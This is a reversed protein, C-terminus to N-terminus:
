KHMKKQFNIEIHDKQSKKEKVSNLYNEISQSFYKAPNYENKPAM